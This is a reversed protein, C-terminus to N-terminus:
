SALRVAAAFRRAPPVVEPAPVITEEAATTGIARLPLVLPLSTQPDTVIHAEIAFVERLLEATIVEAPTGVAVIEGAKMAVIRDAYRAALNLDHLIMVVTRGEERNLTRALDLLDIQAAIDLFTTPEDLLLVPTEQALAMGFWARQRQGGSLTAVERFRMEQLDCRDLAGELASEDGARWQHFLHQYPTRGAAVLDEVLVGAPPIPGQALLALRRALSRHSGRHIPQDGLRVTGGQPQLLRACTRLLTSKGCANPGIIATIQGAPLDLALGRSITVRGYGTQLGSMAFGANESAAAVRATPAAGRPICFPQATAPHPHIDCTIGYLEHLLAPDVVEQPAGERIIRGERMAVIHHSIRTAENLDHLVMVITRGEERNLREVLEIVDLQHAIDLYTTPEDLLILPTEQALAMALWARQRQGGSLQDVVRRRLETMGTLALAREVAEADRRSPPQLFAQHPYRGRRALDEVLLGDPPVTQQHLLGMQQAVERTALSHIQQGDLYVAGATPQMLRVLARLLTSKGCGNPGIISTIKGEPIDISLERVIPTDGYSLTLNDAHLHPM